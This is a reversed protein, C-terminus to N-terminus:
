KPAAYKADVPSYMTAEPHHSTEYASIEADHTLTLGIEDLGELLMHKRFKDIEFPYSLGTPDTVNQAPLDITLSYGQQSQVRRFLEDIKEEPLAIPLLGNV